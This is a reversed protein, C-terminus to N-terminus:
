SNAGIRVATDPGVSANRDEAFLCINYKEGNFGTVAYLGGESEFPEFSVNLLSNLESVTMSEQIGMLSGLTGYMATCLDADTIDASDAAPFGLSIDTGDINYFVGGDASGKETLDYNHWLDGMSMGLCSVSEFHKWPDAAAEAEEAPGKETQEETVEAPAEGESSSKETGCAAMSLCLIFMLMTILSKKIISKEM